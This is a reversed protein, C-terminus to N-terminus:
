KLKVVQNPKALEFTLSDTPQEMPMATTKVALRWTRGQSWLRPDDLSWYSGAIGALDVSSRIVVDHHEQDEALWQVIVTRRIEEFGDTLVVVRYTGRVGDAEWYGGSIVTEVSTTISDVQRLIANQAPAAEPALLLTLVLFIRAHAM